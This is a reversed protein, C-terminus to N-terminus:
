DLCCKHANTNVSHGVETSSVLFHNYHSWMPLTFFFSVSYRAALAKCLVPQIPNWNPFNVRQRPYETSRNSRSQWPLQTFVCRFVKREELASKQEELKENRWKTFWSSLKWLRCGLWSPCNFNCGTISKVIGCKESTQPWCLYSERLSIVAANLPLDFRFISLGWFSDQWIQDLWTDAQPALSALRTMAWTALQALFRIVYLLKWGTM